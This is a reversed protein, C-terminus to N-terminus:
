ARDTCNSSVKEIKRRLLDKHRRFPTIIGISKHALQEVNGLLFDVIYNAEDDNSASRCGKNIYAVRGKINLVHAGCYTGASKETKVKLKGQYFQKNSFEIIQPHCRYHENLLFTKGPKIIKHFLDFTSNKRFSYVEKKDMLDCFALNRDDTREEVTIVPNLQKEDGVIILRKARKVAPLSSAINCQSAEDIIVLDFVIDQPISRDISYNTSAIVPYLQLLDNFPNANQNSIEMSNVRLYKLLGEKKQKTVEQYANFHVAKLLERDNAIKQKQM